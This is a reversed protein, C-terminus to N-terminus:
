KMSNVGMRAHHMRLQDADRPDPDMSESGRRHAQAHSSTANVPMYPTM